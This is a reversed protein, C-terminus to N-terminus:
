NLKQITTHPSKVIMRDIEVLLDTPNKILFTNFTTSHTSNLTYQWKVIKIIETCSFLITEWKNQDKNIEKLSIKMMTAYICATINKARLM